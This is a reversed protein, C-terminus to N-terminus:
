FMNVQVESNNGLINVTVEFIVVALDGVDKATSSM